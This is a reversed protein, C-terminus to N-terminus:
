SKVKELVSLNKMIEYKLNLSFRSISYELAKKAASNRHETSYLNKLKGNIEDFNIPFDIIQNLYGCDSLFEEAIGIRTTIPILGSAVSEILSIPGGEKSSLILHHSCDILDSCTIQKKIEFYELNKRNTSSSWIDHEEWNRGLVKFQLHPNKDVFELFIDVNKRKTPSGIFAIKNGKFNPKKFLEPKIAGILPIIPCIVGNKQLFEKEQTSHVFILDVKNLVSIYKVSIEGFLHTFWLIKKNSRFLSFKLFNELPTISSFLLTRKQTVLKVVRLFTLVFQYNRVNSITKPSLFFDPSSEAVESFMGGLVWHEHSPDILIQIKKM